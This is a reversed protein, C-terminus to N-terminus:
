GLLKFDEEYNKINEIQNILDTYELKEIEMKDGGLSLYKLM